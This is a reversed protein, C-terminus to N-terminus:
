LNQRAIEDDIEKATRTFVERVDADTFFIEELARVFYERGIVGEPTGKLDFPVEAYDALKYFTVLRPDDLAGVNEAAQKNATMRTRAMITQGEPGTFYKLVDWAKEKDQVTDFMAYGAWFLVSAHRKWKPLVATGFNLGSPEFKTAMPWIGHFYMATRGSVFMQDGGGLAEMTAKTPIVKDVRILDAIRQIAEITADSDLYGTARTAEPNMVDGNNALIFPIMFRTEALNGFTAGYRVVRNGSVQTLAKAAAEFDDWTWEDSPYEIGAEDFFDKNYYLVLPSFDKPIAFFEGNYKGYELPGAFFDDENIGNAGTVFPTLNTLRGERAFPAVDGDGIQFIDPPSGAAVQTLVKQLYDASTGPPSQAIVEVGPNAEMYNKAIQQQESIGDVGEWSYLTIAASALGAGFVLSALLVVVLLGAHRRVKV